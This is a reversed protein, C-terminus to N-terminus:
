AIHLSDGCRLIQRSLDNPLRRSEIFDRALIALQQHRRNSSNIRLIIENIQGLISAFLGIGLIIIAISLIVQGTLVCM